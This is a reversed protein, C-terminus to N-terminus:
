EIYECSVKMDPPREEMGLGLVLWATPVPIGGLMAVIIIIIIIIGFDSTAYKVLIAGTANHLLQQLTPPLLLVSCASRDWNL